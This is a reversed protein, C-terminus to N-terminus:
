KVTIKVVQGNMKVLYVGAQLAIKSIESALCFTKVLIGSTTYIYIPTGKLGTFMLGDAVVKVSTGDVVIGDISTVENNRSTLRYGKAEVDSGIANTVGISKADLNKKSSLCFIPQGDMFTSNSLSYVVVRLTHANLKSYSLQHTTAMVGSLKVEVDNVNVPLTIDAQLAAFNSNNDLAIDINSKDQQSLVLCDLSRDSSPTDNMASVGYGKAMAGQEKVQLVQQMILDTTGTVDSISIHDDSNVDAAEFVFTGTVKNFIYNVTNVADVVNIEDDDNSDGKLVPLVKVQCSAEVQSGDQSTAKIVADGPAIASIVGDESVKAVDENTSSWIFSANTADTPAVIASLQATHNKRIALNEQSLSISSVMTPDVTITCTAKAGGGDNAIAHISTQGVKHATVVGDASVSAVTEDDSKWDVKKNTAEDPGVTVALTLTESAKLHADSLNLTLSSLLTNETIRKFTGWNEWTPSYQYDGLVDPYEDNDEPVFLTGNTEVDSPFNALGEPPTMAYSKVYKIGTCGEFANEGLSTINESLSIWEIGNCGKFSEKSVTTLDGKPIKVYPLSVCNKFAGVGLGYVTEPINVGSLISDNEFASPGIVLLNKGLDLNRLSSCNSFSNDSTSTMSAPFTVNDLSACESFGYDGIQSLNESFRVSKLASCGRFGWMNISTINDPVYVNELGTCYSFMYKDVVKLYKGLTLNKLEAISYFPSRSPVETNYSLWRGLYLTEVPCDRFLGNNADSSGYAMEILDKDDDFTVTTLSTCNTFMQTDMKNVVMPITIAQLKGCESFLGEKLWPCSTSLKASELAIDDAFAYTGITTVANPIVIGGLKSMGRFTWNGITTLSEPLILSECNNVKYLLYDKCYTVTGAQSFRVDTLFQQNYFPSYSYDKDATYDVNRGIYLSTLNSNGFLPLMYRRDTEGTAGSGLTVAENSDEFTLNTLYTCDSFTYNGISTLRGPFSLTNILSCQAFTYDGITLTPKYQDNKNFVVDKLATCGQYTNNGLLSLQGPFNVEPLAVCDKFSANNIKLEHNSAEQFSTSALVQCNAFAYNDITALSAPYSINQLKVCNAFAYDNIDQLANGLVVNTLNSCGDCLHNYVFTVKPGVTVRALTTSNVFPASARTESNWTRDGVKKYISVSGSYDYKLNRGLYLTKIPCDYFYDYKRDEYRERDYSSSINSLMDDIKRSRTKKTDIALIGDGDKFRLTSTNTCGYFSNTGITQVTGPIVFSRVGSNNWFVENGITELGERMTVVAITSDNYFAQDGISKVTAPLNMESLAICNKFANNPVSTLSQGLKANTLKRCGEFASGGMTTFKDPLVLATFSGCDVFSYDGVSKLGQGVTIETVSSCYAFARSGIETTADPFTLKTVNTCNQFACDGVIELAQGLNLTTLKSCEEFASRGIEKVKPLETMTIAANKYFLYPAIKTVSPSITIKALKPQNYFASYGYYQPNAEFSYNTNEVYNIDRGIYVTELPCTSFLGYSNDTDYSYYRGSGYYRCYSGLYIPEKGDEFRVEKLSSCGYFPLTSPATSSEKGYDGVQTVSGPISMSELSTCNAFAKDAIKILGFSLRVDKLASCDGFVSKSLEQCGAGVEVSQLNKCKAFCSEGLTAVQNPIIINTIGSACFANNGISILSEPLIFPKWSIALSGVSQFAENGITQLAAGLNIDSLATCGSFANDSVVKVSNGLSARKMNANDMFASKSITEVSNPLVLSTINCADFAREPIETLAGTVMLDCLSKCDKFLYPRIETVSSSITVKKIKEQKYFASYGYYQPNAEFSYNTNEVYNIDRGIYVTELPCTSFLGYSNDTDYSYYRGSGYYRCYSGLYIPEKGDEFRVEKLSSCGYFPLTSPNTSSEKRYDGVQTVTGPISISEMVTCNAFAKDAIKTVTFTVGNYVVSEPIKVNASLSAYNDTGDVEYTVTATRNSTDLDYYLGDILTSAQLLACQVILGIILVLRMFLCKGKNM